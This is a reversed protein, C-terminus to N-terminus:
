RGLGFQQRCHLVPRRCRQRRHQRRHRHWYGGVAVRRVSRRCRQLKGDDGACGWTLFRRVSRRVSRGGGDAAGQQGYPDGFPSAGGQQGFPSMGQQGLPNMGSMGSGGAGLLSGLIDMLSTGGGSGGM